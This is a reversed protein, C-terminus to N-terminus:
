IFIFSLPQVYRRISTNPFHYTSKPLESVWGAYIKKKESQNQYTFFATANKLFKVIGMTYKYPYNGM